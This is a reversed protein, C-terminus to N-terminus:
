TLTLHCLMCNPLRTIEPMLARFQTWSKRFSLYALFVFLRLIWIFYRLNHFCFLNTIWLKNYNLHLFAKSVGSFM